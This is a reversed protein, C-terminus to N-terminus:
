ARICDSIARWLEVTDLRLRCEDLCVQFDLIHRRTLRALKAELWRTREDQTTTERASREILQWFGDM